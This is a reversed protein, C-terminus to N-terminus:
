VGNINGSGAVLGTRRDGSLFDSGFMHNHKGPYDKIRGSQNTWCSEFRDFGYFLKKIPFVMGSQREFEM